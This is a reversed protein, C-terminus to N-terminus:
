YGDNPSAPQPVQVTTHVFELFQCEHCAPRDQVSLIAGHVGTVALSFLHDHCQWECLLSKYLIIEDVLM